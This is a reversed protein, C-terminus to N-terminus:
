FQTPAPVRREYRLVRYADIKKLALLFTRFQLNYSDPASLIITTYPEYGLKEANRLRMQTSLSTRAVQAAIRGKPQTITKTSTTSVM